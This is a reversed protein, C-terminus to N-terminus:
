TKHYEKLDEKTKVTIMPHDILRNWEDESIIKLAEEKPLWVDQQKNQRSWHIHERLSPQPLM